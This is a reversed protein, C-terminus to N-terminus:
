RNGKIKEYAWTIPLSVLFFIGVVAYMLLGLIFQGITLGIGILVIVYIITWIDM